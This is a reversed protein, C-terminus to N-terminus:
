LIEGQHNKLFLFIQEGKYVHSIEQCPSAQADGINTLFLSFIRPTDPISLFLHLGERKTSLSERLRPSTHTMTEGSEVVCLDETPKSQM